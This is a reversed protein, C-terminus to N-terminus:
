RRSFATRHILKNADRSGNSDKSLMEVDVAPRFFLKKSGPSRVIGDYYGLNGYEELSSAYYYEAKIHKGYEKDSKQDQSSKLSSRMFKKLKEANAWETENFVLIWVIAYDGFGGGKTTPPIMKHLYNGKRDKRFEHILAKLQEPGTSKSVVISLSTSDQAAVKFQPIDAAESNFPFSFETCIALGL